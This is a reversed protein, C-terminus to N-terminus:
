DINRDIQLHSSLNSVLLLPLLNLLPVLDSRPNLVKPPALTGEEVIAVALRQAGGELAAKGVQDAGHGYGDAKSTGFMSCRRDATTNSEQLPSISCVKVVAILTSTNPIKSRLSKVNHAV